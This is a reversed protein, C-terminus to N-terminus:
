RRRSYERCLLNRSCSASTRIQVSACCAWFLTLQGVNWFRVRCAATVLALPCPVHLTAPAGEGSLYEFNRGDNPVRAVCVGPGLQVNAGKAFFEAGMARGWSEM